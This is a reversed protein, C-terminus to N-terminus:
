SMSWFSFTKAAPPNMCSQGAKEPGSVNWVGDEPRRFSSIYDSVKKGMERASPLAIIALPALPIYKDLQRNLSSDSSM